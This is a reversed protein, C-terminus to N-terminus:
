GEPPKANSHSRFRPPSGQAQVRVVPVVVVGFQGRLAVLQERGEFTIAPHGNCIGPSDIASDDGLGGLDGQAVVGHGHGGNGIAERLAFEFLGGLQGLPDADGVAHDAGLLEGVRVIKAVLGVAAIEALALKVASERPKKGLEPDFRDDRSCVGVVGAVM